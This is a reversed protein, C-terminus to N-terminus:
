SSLVSLLNSIFFKNFDDLYYNKSHLISRVFIIFKNDIEYHKIIYNLIRIILEHKEINYQYLIQTMKKESLVLPKNKFNEILLEIQETSLIKCKRQGQSIGQIYNIMSRVDSKFNNIINILDETKIVKINENIVINELYSLIKDQPLMNFKFSMCMNRLVREIKSIYNCILCFRVNASNEKMLNFLSFQANKTM